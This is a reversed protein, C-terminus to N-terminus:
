FPMNDIDDVYRSSQNNQAPASNQPPAQRQSSDYTDVVFNLFSGTQATLIQLNLMPKGQYDKLSARGEDTKLWDFLERPDIILKGVVFQPAQPLRQFGKVGKPYTKKEAM